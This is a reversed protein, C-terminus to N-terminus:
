NCERCRRFCPRRGITMNTFCMSEYIFPPEIVDHRFNSSCAVSDDNKATYMTYYTECFLTFVALAFILMRVLIRNRRSTRNLLMCLMSLVVSSILSAVLLYRVVENHSSIIGVVTLQIISFLSKAQAAANERRETMYADEQKLANEADGDLEDHPSSDRPESAITVFKNSGLKVVTNLDHHSAVDNFHMSIYDYKRTRVWQNHPIYSVPGHQMCVDDDMFVFAEGARDVQGSLIAHDASVNADVRVFNGIRYYDVGSSKVISLFLNWPLIFLSQLYRLKAAVYMKRDDAKGYMANEIEEKHYEPKPLLLMEDEVRDAADQVTENDTCGQIVNFDKDIPTEIGYAIAPSPFGENETYSDSLVISTHRYNISREIWAAMSIDALFLANTGSKRADVGEMYTFVKTRFEIFEDTAMDPFFRDPVDFPIVDSPIAEERLVALINNMVDKNTYYLITRRPGENIVDKRSLVGTAMYLMVRYVNVYDLDLYSLFNNWRVDNSYYHDLKRDDKSIIYRSRGKVTAHAIALVSMSFPKMNVFIFSQSGNVNRRLPCLFFSLTLYIGYARLVFCLLVFLVPTLIGIVDFVEM